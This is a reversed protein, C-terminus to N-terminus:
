SICRTYDFCLLCLAFLKHQKDVAAHKILKLYLFLYNLIFYVNAVLSNAAQTVSKVQTLYVDAESISDIQRSLLLLSHLSAPLAAGSLTELTDPTIADLEQLLTTGEFTSLPASSISAYYDNLKILTNQKEM